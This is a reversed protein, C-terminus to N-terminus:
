LDAMQNPPDKDLAEYLQGFYEFSLNCESTM